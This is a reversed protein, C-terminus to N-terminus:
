TVLMDTYTFWVPDRYCALQKHVYMKLKIICPQHHGWQFTSVHLRPLSISLCVDDFPQTSPSLTATRHLFAVRRRLLLIRLSPLVAQLM